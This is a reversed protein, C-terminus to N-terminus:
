VAEEYEGMHFYAFGRNNYCNAYDGKLELAKSYYEIAKEYEGRESEILGMNNYSDVLDRGEGGM